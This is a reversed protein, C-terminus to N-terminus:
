GLRFPLLAIWMAGALGVRLGVGTPVDGLPRLLLLWRAARTVNYVIMVGLFAPVTWWAIDFSSPIADLYPSLAYLFLAALAVSGGLRIWLGASSKPTM